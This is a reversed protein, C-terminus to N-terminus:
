RDSSAAGVHECLKEDLADGHADEASDNAERDAVAARGQDTVDGAPRCGRGCRRDGDGDAERRRHPHKEAVVRRTFRRREIRNLRESILLPTPTSRPRANPASLKASDTTVWRRETACPGFASRM